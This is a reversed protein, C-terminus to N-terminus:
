TRLMTIIKLPVAPYTLLGCSEAEPKRRAREPTGEEENWEVFLM